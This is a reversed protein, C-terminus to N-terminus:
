GNSNVRKAAEIAIAYCVKMREKLEAESLSTGDTYNEGAVYLAASRLGLISSVVFMSSTEHEILEVGLSKWRAIKEEADRGYPSEVYYADHSRWIGTRPVEGMERAVDALQEMLGMDSVAPYQYNVYELTAGEGRVSGMALMLAGPKVGPQVAAGVGVKIINKGGIHKLEEVAIAMPMCGNGTSMVSLPVGDKSGTYTLYERYMGTQKADDLMAAIDRVEEMNATLILTKVIDGEDTGLHHMKGDVHTMRKSAFAM